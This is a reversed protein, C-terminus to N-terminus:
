HVRSVESSEASPVPCGLGIDEDSSDECNDPEPQTESDGDENENHGDDDGEDDGEDDTEGKEKHCAHVSSEM